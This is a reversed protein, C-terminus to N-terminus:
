VSKYASSKSSWLAKTTNRDSFLMAVAALTATMGVSTFFCSVLFYRHNLMGVILPAVTLGLNQVSTILGFATAVQEEPVILPVSSWIVAAYASYGFGLVFLYAAGSYCSDNDNILSLM